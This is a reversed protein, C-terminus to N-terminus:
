FFNRHNPSDTRIRPFNLYAQHKEEALANIFNIVDGPELVSLDVPVPPPFNSVLDPVPDGPNQISDFANVLRALVLRSLPEVMPAIYFVKVCEKLFKRETQGQLAFGLIGNFIQQSGQSYGVFGIPKAEAMADYLLAIVAITTANEISPINGPAATNIAATGNALTSFGVIGLVQL